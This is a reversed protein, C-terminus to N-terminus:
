QRRQRFNMAIQKAAALEAARQAPSLDKGFSDMLASDEAFFKAIDSDPGFLEGHILGNALFYRYALGANREFTPSGAAYETAIYNVVGPDTGADAEAILQARALVKWEQVLPDDPRATLASPDGFPGERLFAIASGPVGAKAAAALYELRSQRERETMAGCRIADRQKEQETMHRYGFANDPSKKRLEEDYIMRDHDRNFEVCDALLGYALYLKEPDHTEVLERVQRSLSVDGPPMPLVPRSTSSQAPAAVRAPSIAPAAGGERVEGSGAKPWDM